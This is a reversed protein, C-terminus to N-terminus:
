DVFTSTFDPANRNLLLTQYFIDAQCVTDACTSSTEIKTEGKSFHGFTLSSM